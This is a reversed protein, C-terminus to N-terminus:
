VLKLKKAAIVAQTRNTVGLKRCISKVHMKITAEALNLAEGIERNPSGSTLESLVAMERESLPVAISNQVAAQERILDMPLYKEGAAMFRVANALTKMTTTKPIVGAGGLKMTDDVVRSTPNGTFIGVPRGGNASLMRGLGDLGNMGPMDLDLLVLDFAGSKDVEELATDLSLATKVTMDSLNSIYLEIMELILAHDDAVLLRIGDREGATVTM